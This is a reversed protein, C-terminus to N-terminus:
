QTIRGKSNFDIEIKDEPTSLKVRNYFLDEPDAKQFLERLLVNLFLSKSVDLKKCADEMRDMVEQHLFVDKLPKNM